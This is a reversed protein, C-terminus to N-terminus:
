RMAVRTEGSLLKSMAAQMSQNMQKLEAVTQELQEVEALKQQQKQMENLL